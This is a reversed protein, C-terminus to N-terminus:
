NSSRPMSILMHECLSSTIVVQARTVTFLNLPLQELVLGQIRGLAFPLSIIPRNRGNYKLVAQM